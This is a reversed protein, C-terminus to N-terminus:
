PLVPHNRRQQDNFIVLSGKLDDEEKNVKAKAAKLQGDLTM